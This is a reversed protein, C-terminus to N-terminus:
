SARRRSHLLAETLLAQWALPEPLGVPRCARWAQVIHGGDTFVVSSRVGACGPRQTIWVTGGPGETPEYAVWGSGERRVAELRIGRRHAESLLWPVLTPDITGIEGYLSPAEERCCQMAPEVQFHFDNEIVVYVVRRGSALSVAMATQSLGPFGHRDM